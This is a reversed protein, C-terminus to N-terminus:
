SVRRESDRLSTKEAGSGERARHGISGTSRKTSVTGEDRWPWTFVLSSLSFLFWFLFTPLHFISPLFSFFFFWPPFFAYLAPITPEIGPLPVLIGCAKSCSSGHVAIVSSTYRSWLAQAHCWFIRHSVSLDQMDCSLGLVTLNFFFFFPMLTLSSPLCSFVISMHFIFYDAVGHSFSPSGAM